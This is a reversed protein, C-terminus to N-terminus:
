ADGYFFVGGVCSAEGVVCFCFQACSLVVDCFGHCGEVEVALLVVPLLLSIVNLLIMNYCLCDEEEACCRRCEQAQQLKDPLSAARRRFSNEGKGYSEDRCDFRFLGQQVYQFLLGKGGDGQESSQAATSDGGGSEVCGEVSLFAM